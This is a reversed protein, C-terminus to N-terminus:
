KFREEIDSRGDRGLCIVSGYGISDDFPKYILPHGWGDNTTASGGSLFAIHHINHDPYFQTFSTPWLDYDTHFAQSADAIARLRTKTVIAPAPDPRHPSKM